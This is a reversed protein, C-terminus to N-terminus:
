RIFGMRYVHAMTYLRYGNNDREVDELLSANEYYRISEIKMEVMKSLQGIQFKDM